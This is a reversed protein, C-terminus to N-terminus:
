FIDINEFTGAMKNMSLWETTPWIEKHVTTVRLPYRKLIASRSTCTHRDHDRAYLAEEEVDILKQECLSVITAALIRTFVHCIAVSSLTLTTDRKIVLALSLDSVPSRVRIV